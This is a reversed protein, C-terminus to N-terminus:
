YVNKFYSQHRLDDESEYLLDESEPDIHNSPNLLYNLTLQDLREEQM